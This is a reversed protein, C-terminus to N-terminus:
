AQESLEPVSSIPVWFGERWTCHRAYDHLNLERSELLIHVQHRTLPASHIGRVRVFWRDVTRNELDAAYVHYWKLPVEDWAEEEPEAEAWVEEAEPVEEESPEPPRPPSLFDGVAMWPGGVAQVLDNDDLRGEDRLAALRESDLGAYIRNGRLARLPTVSAPAAGTEDMTRSLYAGIEIWPGGWISVFDAHSFRGSALLRDFSERTMPGFVLDGKRLRLGGGRKMAM